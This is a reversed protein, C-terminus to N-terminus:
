VSLETASTPARWFKRSHWYNHVAHVNKM